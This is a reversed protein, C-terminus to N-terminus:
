SGALRSARGFFFFLSVHFICKSIKDKKGDYKISLKAPYSIRAQFNNERLVEFANNWQRRVEPVAVSADSVM